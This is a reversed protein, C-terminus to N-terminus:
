SSSKGSHARSLIDACERWIEPARNKFEALPDDEAGSGGIWWGLLGHDDAGQLAKALGRAGGGANQGFDELVRCLRRYTKRHQGELHERDLRLVRITQVGMPSYDALDLCYRATLRGTIPDFDLHAWPNENSPDILLPQGNDQLPFQSSKFRGCETCCLLLNTWRFM